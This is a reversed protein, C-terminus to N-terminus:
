PGCGVDQYARLAFSTRTVFNDFSRKESAPYDFEIHRWKTGKCALMARRYFIRDGRYGSSVVWDSGRREYTVQEAPPPAFQDATANVAAERSVPVAFFWLWADGTPSVFRRGYSQSDPPLLTWSNPVLSRFPIYAERANAAPSAYSVAVALSLVAILPGVSRMPSVNNEYRTLMEWIGLNRAQFACRM